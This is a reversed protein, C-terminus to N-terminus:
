LLLGDAKLAREVVQRIYSQHDAMQGLAQEVKVPYRTGIVKRSLAYEGNKPVQQALFEPTQVPNLNAM